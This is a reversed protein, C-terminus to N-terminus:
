VLLKILPNYNFPNPYTSFYNRARFGVGWWEIARMINHLSSHYLEVKRKVKLKLMCSAKTTSYSKLFDQIILNTVAQIKIM